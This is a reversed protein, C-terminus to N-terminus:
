RATAAGAASAQVPPTAAAPPTAASKTTAAAARSASETAVADRDPRAAAPTASAKKWQIKPTAGLREYTLPSWPSLDRNELAPAQAYAASTALLLAATATSLLRTM